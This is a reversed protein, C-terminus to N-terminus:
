AAIERFKEAIAQACALRLGEKSGFHYAISALNAGAATAIDRTSTAEFGKEGFLELGAAILATRTRDSSAHPAKPQDAM